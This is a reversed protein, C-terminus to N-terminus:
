AKPMWTGLVSVLTDIELPKSMHANMGSSKAHKVDESFADASLAIIPIDILDPRDLAGHKRISETAEYGNMVPMQIDMLVLDYTGPEQSVLMDVAIKGNEAHDVDAGTLGLLEEAITAAMANDEVLLIRRGNFRCGELIDKDSVSDDKGGGLLDKMVQILRSRFLPKSIFADVGVARAEQEIMSWDYGSFIIVPVNGEAVEKIKRATEIGSMGPMRWDLIVASFPHDTNISAEVAEVGEAGSLRYEPDMGIDKLMICAGECASEEDDVVLVRLGELESLDESAGDRLRLHVTVTFKTGEGVKSEVDVTGNMLSVVSKVIAMGLGTGEIKTVRSDNARSFPEFVRKVFEEDMGCGTDTFTFEYCGFDSIRSPLEEIRLTLNGGEPTFKVSNGMINVFVQQLRTPDGIVHEHKIDVLDVRLNLKKAEVQPNIITLLSEIAQPLDFEEDALSISGSEIKAMDLVENILGLLHKSASSINSLCEKVRNKDDIYMSAIATLGMISNMPTRIDHSMSNLFDSKAKSANEAARYAEELAEHAAAKEQKTQTEDQVAVLVNEPTGDELRNLCLFEFQLWRQEGNRYARQEVQIFPVDETLRKALAEPEVAKNFAERDLEHSTMDWYDRLKTYTGRPSIDGSMCDGKLYEYTDDKLNISILGTYLNMSADIIRNARQGELLLQNRQRRAQTMMLGIVILGAVIVGLALVLGAQDARGVMANTISEPFTRLILWDYSPLKMLCASGKGSSSTYSFNVTTGDQFDQELEELSVSTENSYDYIDLANEAKVEFVSSRAIIAGDNECLYTTTQEGFFYTTMIQSLTDERYAGSLVGVIQGEYYLPAYFIIVNREEFIAEEVACMGYNGKMGEIYYQRDTALGSDGNNNYTIGSPDTYAMYDFNNTEVLTTAQIPDVEPSTLMDEFVMADARISSLASSLMDDIRRTTQQTSGQLYDSNQDEIRARNMTLFVLLAIVVALIALAVAIIRNRLLKHNQDNVM